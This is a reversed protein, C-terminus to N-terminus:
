SFPDYLPSLPPPRHYTNTLLSRAFILTTALVHINNIVLSNFHLKPPLARATIVVSSIQKTTPIAHAVVISQYVRFLEKITKDADVSGCFDIALVITIIIVDGGGPGSGFHGGRGVEDRVYISYVVWEIVSRM